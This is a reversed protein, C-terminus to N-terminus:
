RGSQAGRAHPRTAPFLYGVVWLPVISAGFLFGWGAYRQTTSGGGVTAEFTAAKPDALWTSLRAVLDDHESAVHSQVGEVWGRATFYRVWFSPMHQQRRRDFSSPESSTERKASNVIGLDRARVPFGAVRRTLECDPRGAADRRCTLAEAASLYLLVGTPVMVALSFALTRLFGWFSYTTVNAM